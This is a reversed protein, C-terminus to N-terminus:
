NGEGDVKNVWWAFNILLKHFVKELFKTDAVGNRVRDLNYVRWCAWAHVPPNMDSFEWEYAPIQGNPHQFQEFLLIWLNEKAFEADVLALTICQFALDWAAFWPFEWKDPMSLVRMSNLHRWHVNRMCKRSEPPPTKPDDGELWLNVDWLYIQKSWLMGALAQRQILKEDSTARPPHIAEYFEDAESKRQAVIRDVDSLANETPKPTLRLRLVVSKGAPIMYEYHVCAKTGRRAPNACNEGHVIYRHFADKVFPKRNSSCGYLKVANSENDTFLADGVSPAYLYRKSLSYAFQLNTLQPRDFDDAILIISDKGAPQITI